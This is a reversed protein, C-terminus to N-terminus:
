KKTAAAFMAGAAVLGIVGFSIGAYMGANSSAAAKSKKALSTKKAKLASWDCNGKGDEWYEKEMEADWSGGDEKCWYIDAEQYTMCSSTDEVWRKGAM